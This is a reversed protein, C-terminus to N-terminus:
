NIIELSGSVNFADIQLKRQVAVVCADAQEKTNKIWGVSRPASSFLLLSCNCIGIFVAPQFAHYRQEDNESADQSRVRSLSVDGPKREIKNSLDQHLHPPSSTRGTRRLYISKWCLFVYIMMEKNKVLWCRLVWSNTTQENRSQSRAEAASLSHFTEASERLKDQREEEGLLGAVCCIDMNEFKRKRAARRAVGM